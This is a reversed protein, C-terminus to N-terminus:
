ASDSFYWVGLNLGLAFDLSAAMSMICTLSIFSFRPAFLRYVYRGLTWKFKLPAIARNNGSWLDHVLEGYRKALVGKTGLPNIKNLEKLHRGVLFYQTFIHTNSLCQFASNMYCTNGLNNLGTCGKLVKGSGASQPVNGKESEQRQVKRM